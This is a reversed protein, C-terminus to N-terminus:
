VLNHLHGHLRGLRGNGHCAMMMKLDCGETKVDAGRNQRESIEPFHIM